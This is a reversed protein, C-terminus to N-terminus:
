ASFVDGSLTTFCNSPGLALFIGAWYACAKWPKCAKFLPARPNSEGDRTAAFILSQNHVCAGREVNSTCSNGDNIYILYPLNKKKKWRAKRCVEVHNYAEFLTLFGVRGREPVGTLVVLDSGRGEEGEVKRGGPTTDGDGDGIVRRGDFVNSHARGLLLLNM